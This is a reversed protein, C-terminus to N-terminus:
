KYIEIKDRNFANSYIDNELNQLLQMKRKNLLIRSIDEKVLNIPATNGSVKFEKINLYYNFISDHLEIYKNNRLFGDIDNTHLPLQKKLVDFYIWQDNFYDYKKAYQFCYSDLQKVDEPNDSKIWRAVKEQYPSNSHLKIYVGKMAPQNLVFNNMNQTYYSEIEKQLVVTDMQQRLLMEEYKFILLATRYDDLQKSVDKQEFNLNLEAKQLLLQKKIWKEIFKKRFDMSDKPSLKPDIIGELEGPYLYVDSVRAIPTEGKGKGSRTCALIQLCLFVIAIYNVKNM